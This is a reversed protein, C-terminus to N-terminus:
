KLNDFFPKLRTEFENDFNVVEAFRKLNRDRLTHYKEEDYHILKITMPDPKICTSADFLDEALTGTYQNYDGIIPVGTAFWNHLIHGYGDGGPKFHYAFRASNMRDAILQIGTIVGDPCGHGYALWVFESLQSKLSEFLEPQPLCNVFSIVSKTQFIPEPHFIELEFEQHYEVYNVKDPVTIHRASSLVNNVYPFFHQWGNNGVQLVLKAQPQFKNRLELWSELHWPYTVILVDFKIWKFLELTLAEQFTHHAEDRIIYSGNCLGPIADKNCTFEHPETSLYQKITDPHNGYPEAIKWYGETFWDEGIPRYIDAKLRKALLQLSHYLGGHHYDSFIKM